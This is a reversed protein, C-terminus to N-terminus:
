ASDPLNDQYTEEDAVGNVIELGPPLDVVLEVTVAARQADLPVRDVLRDVVGVVDGDAM